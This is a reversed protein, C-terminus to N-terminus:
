PGVKIYGFVRGSPRYDYGVGDAAHNESSLINVRRQTTSGRLVLETSEGSDVIMARAAGLVNKYFEGIQNPTGGHGGDIGESEAIVFWVRTGATNVGITTRSFAFEGPFATGLQASVGRAIVAGDFLLLQGMQFAYTYDSRKNQGINPADYIPCTNGAPCGPVNTAPLRKWNNSSRLFDSDTKIIQARQATGTGFVGFMPLQWPQQLVAPPGPTRNPDPDQYFAGSACEIDSPRCVGAECKGPAVFGNMYLYGIARTNQASEGPRNCCVAPQGTPNNNPCVAPSDTPYYQVYNDGATMWWIGNIMAASNQSTAVDKLLNFDSGTVGAKGLTIPVRTADIDVTHLITRGRSYDIYTTYTVGTPLNFAWDLAADVQVGGSGVPYGPVRVNVVTAPSFGSKTVRVTYPGGTLAAFQYFGNGDTTRTDTGIEVTAGSIPNGTWKDVIHGYVGPYDATCTVTLGYDPNFGSDLMFGIRYSGWQSCVFSFRRSHPYVVSGPSTSVVDGGIDSVNLDQSINLDPNAKVVVTEAEGAGNVPFVPCGDNIVGDNDNDVTDDCATESLATGAPAPPCGDNVKGDGDQDVADICYTGPVLAVSVTYRVGIKLSAPDVTAEHFNGGAPPDGNCSTCDNTCNSCTELGDCVGNGCTFPAIPQSITTQAIYAHATNPTVPRTSTSWSEDLNGYGSSATDLYWNGFSDKVSQDLLGSTSKFHGPVYKASAGGWGGYYFPWTNWVGFGDAAFDIGWYGSTDHVALDTRGDSDYDAVIPTSTAGYGHLPISCGSCPSDWSGFGNTALDFFWDGSTTKVSIDACVDSDFRGLAPIDADTGYGAIYGFGQTPFCPCGTCPLDWGNFGNRSYDFYWERYTTGNHTTWIALDSRGDGDFDATMPHATSDGYGYKIEDFRGFGNDSYDIAWMGGADKIALDARGDAPGAISGYDAPVPIASADGYGEYAFDWRGGFGDPGICLRNSPCGDDIFGDGDNDNVTQYLPDCADLSTALEGAAGKPGCGDNVYGDNDDDVYNSCDSEPLGTTSTCRSADIYWIGNAGKVAFDTYGDGDYDAPVFEANQDPNTLEHSANSLEERECGSLVCAIALYSRLGM